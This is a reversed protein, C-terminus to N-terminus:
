KKVVEKGPLQADRFDKVLEITTPKTIVIAFVEEIDETLMRVCGDSQYKGISSRDETLQGKADPEWPVGHLGFGKAPSTCCAVEQDFPIWRSGFITIMETKKGQYYGMVKPKYIAIKSGLTYKGFPTLIGSVKTSDQRGLGVKYTKLLHRENTSMDLGYLWMKCRTTDILLYFSIPKDKRLVNFRDGEAIQQDFYDPKGRLSRAIFHRSTEYHSAYDSLWAAPRGKLWDVRSKYTITEVLPMKSDKRFLDDIRDVDPLDEVLPPPTTQASNTTLVKPAAQPQPPTPEPAAAVITQAPPNKAPAVTVPKIVRVENGLEVELPARTETTSSAPAASKDGKFFFAVAIASLLCVATFGLIKPFSM